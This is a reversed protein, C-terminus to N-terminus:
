NELADLEKSPNVEDVQRLIEEFFLSSRILTIVDDDCTGLISAKQLLHPNCTRYALSEYKTRIAAAIISSICPSPNCRKPKLSFWDM